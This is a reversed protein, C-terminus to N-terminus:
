GQGRSDRPSDEVRIDPSLGIRQIQGGDPTYIGVGSFSMSIGGPLPLWTITGNAGISNTGMVTVNQANRLSMVTFVGPSSLMPSSIVVLPLSGEVLYETLDHTINESPFQRLDIILGDTDAFHRM